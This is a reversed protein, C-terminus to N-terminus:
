LRGATASLVPPPFPPPPSNVVVFELFVIADDEDVVLVAAEVLRVLRDIYAWVWKWHTKPNVAGGSAGAAACDPAQLPYVKM